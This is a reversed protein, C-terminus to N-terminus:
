QNRSRIALFFLGPQGAEELRNTRIDSTASTSASVLYAVIDTASARSMSSGIWSM